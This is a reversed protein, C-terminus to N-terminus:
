FMEGKKLPQLFIQGIGPIERDLLDLREDAFHFVTRFELPEQIDHSRPEVLLDALLPIGKRSVTDANIFIMADMTSGTHIGTDVTDPLPSLGIGPDDQNLIFSEAAPATGTQFSAGL